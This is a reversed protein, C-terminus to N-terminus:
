QKYPKVVVKVTASYKGNIVTITATGLGQASVKGDPSVTAINENSSTYTTGSTASTMERNVNDSYQGHTTLQRTGYREIDIAASGVPMKKLSILDDGADGAVIGKLVVNPPLKIFISGRLEVANGSQDVASISLEQNGLLDIPIKLTAKYQRYIFNYDM